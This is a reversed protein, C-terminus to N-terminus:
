VLQQSKEDISKLLSDYPDIFKQIGENVLQSTVFDLDIGVKALKKLTEQAKDLDQEVTGCVVKGHDAFAEITEDPMTNVTHKGILPEVYMVDNYDPNKTSTSAWLPRQFRAGQNVLDEWQKGQFIKKFSVYAMKANAVATKGLLSKALQDMQEDEGTVHHQLLHDTLVDIRSLFFSAVSAVRDLPKNEKARRELARIYAKAVEEYMQVSFLLTININIGEYLMQEIAPIGEQTGPIKIFCNPRNVAEFLHRAQQQTAQTHHAIHPSVELSVYGDLGDTEDYLPRLVDCADQIDKVVLKEYIEETKLGKKAFAAIEEDYDSTKSIAKNFITPNSTIGRLGQEEVRKKLEGSTIKQRSLNDLWYSQGCDMLKFLNKM